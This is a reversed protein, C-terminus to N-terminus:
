SLRRRGREAIAELRARTADTLAPDTTSPWTQVVPAAADFWEEVAGLLQTLVDIALAVSHLREPFMPRGQFDLRAGPGGTGEELMQMPGGDALYDAAIGHLEDLLQGAQAATTQMSAALAEPSAHDGYFVRLVSEVHLQPEQPPTAQWERLATRGATTITYRKRTRAGAQEDVVTAWGLEVLRKHERYLHGESTPWAFRLSRQVQQTLEYGTWSRSALLGLLGYSVPSAAM